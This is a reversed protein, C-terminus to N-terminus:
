KNRRDCSPADGGGFYNFFSIIKCLSLKYSRYLCIIFKNRVLRAWVHNRDQQCHIQELGASSPLDLHLLLDLCVASWHRCTKSATQHQWSTSLDCLFAWLVSCCSVVTGRDRYFFVDFLEPSSNSYSHRDCKQKLSVNLLVLWKCKIYIVKKFHIM